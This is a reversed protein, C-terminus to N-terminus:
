TDEQLKVSKTMEGISRFYRAHTTELVARSEAGIVVVEVDQASQLDVERGFREELAKEREAPGFEKCERLNRERRDYVLLFYRM